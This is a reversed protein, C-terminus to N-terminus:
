IYYHCHLTPCVAWCTSDSKHSKKIVPNFGKVWHGLQYKIKIIEISCITMDQDRAAVLGSM